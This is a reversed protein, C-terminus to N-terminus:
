RVLLIGLIYLFHPFRPLTKLCIRASYHIIEEFANKDHQNLKAPNQLIIIDIINAFHSLLFKDSEETNVVVLANKMVNTTINWSLSKKNYFINDVEDFSQKAQALAKANM